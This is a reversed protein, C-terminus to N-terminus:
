RVKQRDTIMKLKFLVEAMVDSRIIRICWINVKQGSDRRKSIMEERGASGTFAAGKSLGAAALM